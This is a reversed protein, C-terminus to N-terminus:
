RDSWQSATMHAKLIAERIVPLRMDDIDVDYGVWEMVSAAIRSCTEVLRAAAEREEHTEIASADAGDFLRHLAEECREVEGKTNQFLCYSMSAMQVDREEERTITTM